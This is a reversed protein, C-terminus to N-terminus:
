LDYSISIEDTEPLSQCALRFGDALDEDDLVDNEIMNVSGEVIRYMCSSCEGSRCSFPVALKKELLFDLLVQDSPWDDHDFSVDGIKGSVRSSRASRKSDTSDIAESAIGSSSPYPSAVNTEFPNGELSVFREHHKRERPFGLQDLATLATAMFPAPGCVYADYSSCHRVVSKIQTVTPIGQVSELWHIIVLRDPYKASLESLERAFIVSADNRNAYFLVVNGADLALASKAISVVPTIGSGGAFLLLDVSSRRATFLGAPALAKLTHGVEVNDCMWNSGYGDRVRKVTIKLLDSEHPASSLSYCRAAGGANSDSPVEITLFQGPKYSVSSPAELVFSKADSTEEIVDVVRLQVSETVNSGM